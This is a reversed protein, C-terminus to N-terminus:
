KLLVEVAALSAGKHPPTATDILDINLQGDTVLVDFYRVVACAPKTVALISFSPIVAKGEAEVKLVEPKGDAPPAISCFHLKVVYTSHPIRDFRLSIQNGRRVAQYLPLDRTGDILSDTTIVDSEVDKWLGWSGPHYTREGWWVRGARDKYDRGGINVRYGWQPFAYEAPPPCGAILLVAAAAVAAALCRAVLARELRSCSV